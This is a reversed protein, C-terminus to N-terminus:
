EGQLVRVAEITVASGVGTTVTVRCKNTLPLYAADAAVDSNWMMTTVGDGTIAVTKPAGVTAWEDNGDEDLGLWQDLEWTIGAGATVSDAVVIIRLHKSGSTTIHFENSIVTDTASAGVVVATGNKLVAEQFYGNSM